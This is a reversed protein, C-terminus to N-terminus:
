SDSQNTIVLSLYPLYFLTPLQGLKVSIATINYSKSLFTIYTGTAKLFITFCLGFRYNSHAM